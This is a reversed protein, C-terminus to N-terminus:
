PNKHTGKKKLSKRRELQKALQRSVLTDARFVEEHASAFLPELNHRYYGVTVGSSVARDMDSHRRRGTGNCAVCSSKVGGVVIHFKRGECVRCLNDMWEHLVIDCVTRLLGDSVSGRSPSERMRDVLLSVAPRWSRADLNMSIRWLAAGLPDCFGLAGIRDAGTERNPDHNLEGRSFTFGMLERLGVAM